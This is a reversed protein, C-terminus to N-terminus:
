LDIWQCQELRKLKSLWAISFNLMPAPTHVCLIPLILKIVKQIQGQYENNM